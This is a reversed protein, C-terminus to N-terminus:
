LQKSDIKEPTINRLKLMKYKMQHEFHREEDQINEVQVVATQDNKDYESFFM